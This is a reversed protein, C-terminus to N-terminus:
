IAPRRRFWGAISYRERQAPLVAHPFRESLFFVADGNGPRLRALERGDEAWLVLEGGDTEGWGENLYVATSLVRNANGRFADRHRRYGAGPPYCAYHAEYDFLGLQLRQNLALRLAEMQKLFRWQAPAGGDLWLTLDGRETPDLQRDGSRGIAAPRMLERQAVLEARLAATEVGGLFGPCWWWGADTLGSALEDWREAM